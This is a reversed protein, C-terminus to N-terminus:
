FTFKLIKVFIYTLYHLLFYLILLGLDGQCNIGKINFINKYIIEIKLFLFKM